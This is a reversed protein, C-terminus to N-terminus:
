KENETEEMKNHNESLFTVREAIVETVYVM